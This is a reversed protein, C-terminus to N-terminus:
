DPHPALWGIGAFRGTAGDRRYSFLDPDEFTCSRDWHVIRVGRDALQSVVGASVDLAPTGSWTIAGAVPHLAAVEHRLEDPVEYCRGCISPGVIASVRTAGRREMAELVAGVVGDAMGRRGAHAVAVLGADPDALVVPTCDAVMVVLGVREEGTVQADAEVVTAPVSASSSDLDVMHVRTGHVQSTFSLRDAQLGLVSGLAARNATVASDVDGVHRALNFSSFPGESFGGRRDTFAVHADVSRGPIVFRGGLM